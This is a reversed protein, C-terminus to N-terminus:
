GEFGVTGAVGCQHRPEADYEISERKATTGNACRLDCSQAHAAKLDDHKPELTGTVKIIVVSSIQATMYKVEVPKLLSFMAEPHLVSRVQSSPAHTVCCGNKVGKSM